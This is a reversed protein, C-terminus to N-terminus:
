TLGLEASCAPWQGWGAEAQLKQAAANQMAPPELDPRGPYGLETWTQQSFQYAGYFGNGTDAQYNDGSECMRLEYWVGGAGAGSSTAPPATTTTTTTPPTTTTSTPPTTTTPTTSPSASPTTPATTTSTPPTTTTPATSPPATSSSRTTSSHTTSSHTTPRATRTAASGSSGSTQSSVVALLGGDIPGGQTAPARSRNRAEASLRAEYVALTSQERRATSLAQSRASAAEAAATRATARERRILAVVTAVQRERLRYADLSNSVTGSALSLYEAGVVAGLGSDPIDALDGPTDGTYSDLAADRLSTRSAAADSELHSLTVAQDSLERDLSALEASDSAFQSSLQHIRASTAQVAAQLSAVSAAGSAAAVPSSAAPVVVLAAGLLLGIM